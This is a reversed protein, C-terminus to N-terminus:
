VRYGCSGKLNLKSVVDDKNVQIGADNSNAQVGACNPNAQIGAGNPNAQVVADNPNAQVVAFWRRLGTYKQRFFDLARGGNFFHDIRFVSAVAFVGLALVITVKLHPM